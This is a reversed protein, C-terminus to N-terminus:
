LYENCVIILLREMLSKEVDVGIFILKKETPKMGLWEDKHTGEAIFESIIYDGDSYQRIMTMKLDPYAQRM